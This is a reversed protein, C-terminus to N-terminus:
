FRGEADEFAVFLCASLLLSCFGFLVALGLHGDFHGGLVFGVLMCVPILIHVLARLILMYSRTLVRDTDPGFFSDDPNM